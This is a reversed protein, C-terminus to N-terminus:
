NSRNFHLGVSVFFRVKNTRNVWSLDLNIPGLFSNYSATIGTSILNSTELTEIWNGKPSFANEIFDNFGNFGVSAVHVHPTLFIKNFPKIQLGLNIMMFQSVILEGENLGPFIFDEKRPREINGGLSYLAGYGYVFISNEHSKLKDEFIFGSSVGLIGIVSKHIEFRKEFSLNLKTFGNTAGNVNPISSDLFEIDLEQSLSRSIKARIILGKTPFYVQNMNNYMYHTYFEFNKLRYKELMFVNDIIDPNNKPKIKTIEYNLGLGFYSYLSNINRNIQNDFQNYNYDIDDSIEGLFYFNQELNQGLIETRLWWEKQNGFNNQYQVRYGRQEAIDISVLFRSAKGIINRGTYNVFLGAGRNNDYHLSAKIQHRSKEHGEIQLRLKDGEFNSSLTIQDFIQTGMARDIGKILDEVTYKKKSVLDARTRVLELNSDSINKYIFSDIEIEQSVIPLNHPRQKYKKLKKALGVLVDMNQYTAVKGQEYIANSKGFDGTSYTLNPMHDILIDCRSRNADSKLLSKLMSTQFLVTMLGDLEEKPVMGGGVDSGIIIDAGMSKAVDTPFNNLVGGDVLLTNKYPVPKFISPISMSARMATTISGNEIVVEKGNVIDTAMSRFPIPLKDFDQIKYVPYAYSSLLERLNQDNLISSNLKPKGNIWDFHIMYKEYESKEEVSVHDLLTTGVLLKDWDINRTINAISDGSYGMAYFGGVVSGMSTGIILDPVIGLSDLLQLTPIHAIGKAGGGSLVLAVKPKKNQAFISHTLFFSLFLIFIIKKM